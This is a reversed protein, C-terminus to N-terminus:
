ENVKDELFGALNEADDTGIRLTGGTKFHVVVCSRGWLNWVWGGRISDHIGWGELILTRGVEVKVINAYYIKRRFLRLPGFCISLWNGQDTITLHDFTMGLFLMLVGALILAIRSQDIAFCSIIFLAIATGYLLLYLPSKQTHSYGSVDTEM